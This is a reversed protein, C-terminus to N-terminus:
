REPNFTGLDDHCDGSIRCRREASYRHPGFVREANASTRSCLEAGTMGWVPALLEALVPLSAPTNRRSSLGMPALYPSDTELLLREPPIRSLASRLEGSAPKAALGGVGVFCGREIAWDAMEITGDFSHLVIQVASEWTSLIAVVEAAANRQHIIVPLGSEAAIDLQARFALEQLAPAPGDRFFDLGMEGLAIPRLDSVARWLRSEFAPDYAGAHLPHLGISFDIDDYQDRLASSTRWHDETHAINIFWNVGVARAQDLVNDRDEDFTPEDLHMHTEVIRVQPAADSM